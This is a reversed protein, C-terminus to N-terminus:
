KRKEDSQIKRTICPPEDTSYKGKHDTYDIGLPCQFKYAGCKVCITELTEADTMWEHNATQGKQPM